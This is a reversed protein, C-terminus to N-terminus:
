ARDMRLPSYATTLASPLLEQFSDVGAVNRPGTHFSLSLSLSLSLNCVRLNSSMHFVLPCPCHFQIGLTSLVGTVLRTCFAQCIIRASCMGWSVHRLRMGICPVLSLLVCLNLILLLSFLFFSASFLRDHYHDVLSAVAHMTM